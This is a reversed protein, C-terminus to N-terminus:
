PTVEFVKEKSKMGRLLTFSRKPRGFFEALLEVIRANAKGEVPPVSVHVQYTSADLQEVANKRANTKVRVTIRM